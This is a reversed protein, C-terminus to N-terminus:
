VIKWTPLHKSKTRVREHIMFGITWASRKKQFSAHRKNLFISSVLFFYFLFSFKLFYIFLILSALFFFFLFFFALFFLFLYKDDLYVISIKCFFCIEYNLTCKLINFFTKRTIKYCHRQRRMSKWKGSNLLKVPHMFNKMLWANKLLSFICTVISLQRKLVKLM